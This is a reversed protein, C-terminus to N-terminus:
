YRGISSAIEVREKLRAPRRVQEMGQVIDTMAQKAAAREQVFNAIQALPEIAALIEVKNKSQGLMCCTDAPNRLNEVMPANFLPGRRHVDRFRFGRLSPQLGQVVVQGSRRRRRM